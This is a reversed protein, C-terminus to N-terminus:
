IIKDAYMAIQRLYASGTSLIHIALDESPSIPDLDPQGHRYNHMVEVWESFGDLMGAIVDKEIKNVDNVQLCANKLQNKVLSRNLNKTEPIILRALIELSEFISRVSAKTDPPDSDMYKFADEFAQKVALFKQSELIKLSAIRNLEFEEDIYYHVICEDDIRFGMGEEKMTRMVFQHWDDASANANRQILIRHVITILDLM